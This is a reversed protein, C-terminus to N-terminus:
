EYRMDNTHPEDTSPAHVRTPRQRLQLATEIGLLNDQVRQLYSAAYEAYPTLSLADAVANSVMCDHMCKTIQEKVSTSFNSPVRLLTILTNDVSKSKDEVPKGKYSFYLTLSQPHKTLEMLVNDALHEDEILYESLAAKLTGYTSTFSRLMGLKREDSDDQLLTSSEPADSSVSIGEGITYLIRQVDYAMESMYLRIEITHKM